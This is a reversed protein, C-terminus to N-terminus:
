RHDVRVHLIGNGEEYPHFVAASNARPVPNDHAVNSRSGVAFDIM